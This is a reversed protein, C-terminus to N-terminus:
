NYFYILGCFIFALVTFLLSQPSFWESILIWKPLHATQQHGQFCCLPSVRVRGAGKWRHPTHDIDKDIPFYILGEHRCWLMHFCLWPCLLGLCWQLAWWYNGHNLALALSPWPLWDLLSYYHWVFVTNIVKPFLIRFTFSNSAMFSPVLSNFYM